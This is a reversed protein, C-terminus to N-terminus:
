LTLFPTLLPALLTSATTLSVSYAVDAGALYSIVNSAMAGPASGTLILGTSFEDSFSFLKSIFFALFPMITFQSTVGIIVTRINKVINVFEQPNLVMGVGFMTLGFFLEMYSKLPIFLGPYLFAALGGLIVWVLFLSNFIQLLRNM